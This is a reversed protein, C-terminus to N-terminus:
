LPNFCIKEGFLLTCQKGNGSLLGSDLTQVAIRPFAGAKEVNRGKKGRKEENKKWKAGRYVIQANKVSGSRSIGCGSRRSTLRRRTPDMRSGPM